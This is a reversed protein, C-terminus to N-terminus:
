CVRLIVDTPIHKALALIPLCMFVFGFGLMKTNKFRQKSLQSKEADTLLSLFIRHEMINNIQSLNARNLEKFWLSQSGGIWM